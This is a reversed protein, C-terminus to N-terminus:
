VELLRDRYALAVAQARSKVGLKSLIHEIHTGVTKPSIVLVAAIEPQPKGESLLRLVELERKTLRSLGQERTRGPTRGVLRQVRAVLEDPAFPKVLYDDGGILLGAVRDFSETRSGSLFIIPLDKGHRERLRRCVEYGSVGPMNVDLVVLAPAAGDASALAEEASEAAVTAYGAEALVSTVLTRCWLDDDVVLIQGAM